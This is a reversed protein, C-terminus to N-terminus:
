PCSHIFCRNYFVFLFYTRVALLTGLLVEFFVAQTEKDEVILKFSENWVPNLNNDVVKTKVKFLPRVHVVVYPDSTGIMEMNKLGSARVVTVSLEGQPRLELDSCFLPSVFINDFFM